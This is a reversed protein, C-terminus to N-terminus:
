SSANNKNSSESSGTAANSLSVKASNTSFLSKSISRQLIKQAGQSSNSQVKLSLKQSAQTARSTMMQTVNSMNPM